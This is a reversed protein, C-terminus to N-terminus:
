SALSLLRDVDLHAELHQALQDLVQEVAEDHRHGSPMAGWRRLWAGRQGDDAFLGHM